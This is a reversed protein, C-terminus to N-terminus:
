LKKIEVLAQAVAPAIADPIKNIAAVLATTDIPAAQGLLQKALPSDFKLLYCPEWPGHPGDLEHAPDYVMIGSECRQYVAQQGCKTEPGLPLRPAGNMARWGTLIGAFLDFGTKACHWRDPNTGTQTFYSAVWPNTIDIMDEGRWPVLIATASVLHMKSTDYKRPGPRVGAPGISACDRVLLNGDSAIGSAVICHNGSPPWSYPVRGLDLDYFGTEAGCLLVPCGTGLAQKVAAVTPILPQYQLGIGSLMDYEAALSMGNTNSALNGGEEQAYWAQALNAVQQSTGAPGHGPAGAFKVLAACYAVCEYASHGAIFQDVDLFDAVEGHTNLKTMSQGIEGLFVNADVAGSIGPISAKDSYQIALYSTWPAPCGPRAAADYTWEALILPFRALRADQLRTRIYAASAYIAPLRGSLSELRSLFDYAWEATAASTNQEYDLMLLDQARSNGVVQYMWNAETVAGNLDPRGFHYSIIVDVGAALAEAHNAYFRPDTFGAGETAKVAVRAIGDWQRAWAVYQQWDIGGQYSSIDAYHPSGM